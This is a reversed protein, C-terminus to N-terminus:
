APPENQLYRALKAEKEAIGADVAGNSLMGVVAAKRCVEILNGVEMSLRQENTLEQGAQKEQVGFRQMKTARQIVESCEEILQTLLEDQYPTPKPHTYIFKDTM